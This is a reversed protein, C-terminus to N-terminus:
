TTNNSNLKTPYKLQGSNIFINKQKVLKNKTEEVLQHLYNGLSYNKKIYKKYIDKFYNYLKAFIEVNIDSHSLKYNLIKLFHEFRQTFRQTNLFSTTKAKAKNFFSSNEKILNSENKKLKTYLENITENKVNEPYYKPQNPILGFIGGDM